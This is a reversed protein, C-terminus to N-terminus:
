DYQDLPLFIPVPKGFLHASRVYIPLHQKEATRAVGECVTPDGRSPDLAEEM